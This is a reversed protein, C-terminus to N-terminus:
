NALSYGNVQLIDLRLNSINATDAKGNDGNYVFGHVSGLAPEVNLHDIYTQIIGKNTGTPGEIDAIIILNVTDDVLALTGLGTGLDFTVVSGTATADTIVGTVMVGPNNKLYAKVNTTAANQTFVNLRLSQMKGKLEGDETQNAGNNFTFAYEGIQKQVGGILIQSSGVSNIATLIAGTVDAKTSTAAGDSCYGWTVTTTPTLNMSIGSDVGQATIPYTAGFSTAVTATAISFAVSDLYQATGESAGPNMSKAKIGLYLSTALDKEFVLNLNSFNVNGANNPTGTAVIVGNKDFL